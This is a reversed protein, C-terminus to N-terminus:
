SCYKNLEKPTPIKKKWALCRNQQIKEFNRIWAKNQKIKKRAVKAQDYEQYSGYLFYTWNIDKSTSTFLHLDPNNKFKDRAQFAVVKDPDDFSVLQLTFNTPPQSFLWDNDSEYFRKKATKRVPKQTPKNIPKSDVLPKKVPEASAINDSDFMDESKVWAVFRTPSTVRYWQNKKDLISVTEGKNLRGVISGNTILPVSRANVNSGKITGKKNRVNIFNQHVWVPLGKASKVRAWNPSTKIVTLENRNDLISILVPRKNPNTYLAIPRTQPESTQTQLPKSQQQEEIAPEKITAEPTSQAISTEPKTEVSVAMPSDDEIANVTKKTEPSDLKTQEDAEIDQSFEGASAWGLQELIEISKPENNNAARKFWYESQTHNEELGIGLFYGRGVNFQALPHDLEAAKLWWKMAEQESRKVGSGTLYQHGLNYQSLAHGQRAAQKYWYVAQEYDASNFQNNSFLVGVKFQADRDGEYALLMWRAIEDQYAQKSSLPKSQVTVNTSDGSDQAFSAQVSLCMLAMILPILILVRSQLPNAMTRKSQDFVFSGNQRGLTHSKSPMKKMDIRMNPHFHRVDNFLLM